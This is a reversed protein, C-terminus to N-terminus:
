YHLSKGYAAKCEDCLFMGTMNHYSVKKKEKSDQILCAECTDYLVNYMYSTDVFTEMFNEEQRDMFRKEWEIDRIRMPPTYVECWDDSFDRERGTYRPFTKYSNNYKNVYTYPKYEHLYKKHGAVRVIEKVFNFTAYVESLICYDNKFHPSHYGCEINMCVVPLKKTKLTYVDTLGGSVFKRKFKAMPKKLVEKFEPSLVEVGLISDTIGEADRRDCQIAYMCDDFFSMNAKGTGVCGIEEAHPFFAKGFPLHDLMKLAIYIGIKDDFGVQTRDNKGKDWGYIEGAGTKKMISYDKDPIFHACTDTHAVFCPYLDSDGKTIYLNDHNKEVKYGKSRCHNKLFRIMREERRSSSQVYLINLLLRDIM